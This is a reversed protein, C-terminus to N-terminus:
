HHIDESKEITKWWLWGQFFVYVTQFIIGITATNYNGKGFEYGIFTGIPVTLSGMLITLFKYLSYNTNRRTKAM